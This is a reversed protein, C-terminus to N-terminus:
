FVVGAGVGWGRADGGVFVAGGVSLGDVWPLDHNTMFDFGGGLEIVGFPDSNETPLLWSFGVHTRWRIPYPGLGRGTPASYELRATTLASEASFEHAADDFLLGSQEMRSTGIM